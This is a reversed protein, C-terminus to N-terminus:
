IKPNQPDIKPNTILTTKHKNRKNKETTMANLQLTFTHGMKYIIVM